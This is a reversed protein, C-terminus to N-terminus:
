GERLQHLDRTLQEWEADTIELRQAESLFKQAEPSSSVTQQVQSPLKGIRALFGEPAVGIVRCMVVTDAAPPPVRGNEVKSIYSFDLGVREALERQSVGATRRAERLVEGFTTIM